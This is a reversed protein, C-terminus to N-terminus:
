HGENIFKKASLRNITDFRLGNLSYGGTVYLYDGLSCSFLAVRSEPLDPATVWTDTEITYMEVSTLAIVTLDKADNGGAAFIHSDRYNAM